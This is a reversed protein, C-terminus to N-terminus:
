SALSSTATVVEKGQAALVLDVAKEGIMVTPAHTNGSTVYPMVSADAVRLGEVGHVRLEPDVVADTTRRGDQLHRGPPPLHRPGACTTACSRARACTRARSLARRGAVRRLAPQRGIERCLEVAAVLADVDADRSLCAPDISRRRPRTPRPSGCRGRSAPRISGPWLTYGDPPGEMGELYLPLHFFLPQIDPGPLGPRSRWFLHGHLPQLGPM